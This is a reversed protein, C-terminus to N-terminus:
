VEEIGVGRLLLRQEGVGPQESVFFQALFRQLKMAVMAGGTTRLSISMIQGENTAVQGRAALTPVWPAQRSATRALRTRAGVGSKEPRFVVDGLRGVELSFDPHPASHACSM